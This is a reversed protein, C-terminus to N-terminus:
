GSRDRRVAVVGARALAGIGLEQGNTKIHLRQRGFLSGHTAYGVANASDADTMDLKQSWQERAAAIEAQQRQHDQDPTCTAAALAPIVWRPDDRENLEKLDGHADIREKGVASCWSPAAAATGALGLSVLLSVSCVTAKM